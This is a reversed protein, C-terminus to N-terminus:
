AEGGELEAFLDEFRGKAKGRQRVSQAAELNDLKGEGEVVILAVMGSAAHPTCKYGYIGPTDFTVELDENIKGDWAEVGDPIMGDFSASNHGRDTGKFMVTQGPQVSLVRPYFVNRARKDEPHQNLMEVVVNGDAAVPLAHLVATAACGALFTRRTTSYKM